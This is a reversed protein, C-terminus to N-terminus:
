ELSKALAEVVYVTTLADGDYGVIYSFSGDGQQLWSIYTWPHRLNVQWDVPKHLGLAVWATTSGNSDIYSNDYAFGGDLRQTSELYVKAAEIALDVDVHSGKRRVHRLMRVAAATTDADAEGLTTSYSFGGDPLQHALVTRITDLIETSDVDQGARLLALVGFIDDNLYASDGIQQDKAHNAYLQQVYNESNTDHPNAGVAVLALIHRELDTASTKAPDYDIIAAKMAKPVKHEARALAIAAWETIGISEILGDDDVADTIWNVGQTLMRKRAKRSVFEEESNEVRVRIHAVESTTYDTKTAFINYDGETDLQFNAVGNVDTFVQLYDTQGYYIAADALPLFQATADDYATVTGTVTGGALIDVASLSVEVPASPWAGYTLLVSDSDSLVYADLGVSPSVNNVRYLWYFGLNADQHTEGIGTLLLGYTSIELSLTLGGQDTFSQVACLSTYGTLTYELGASDTVVCGDPVSVWDHFLEGEMTQVRMDVYIPDAAEAELAIGGGIFASLVVLAARAAQLMRTPKNMNGNM